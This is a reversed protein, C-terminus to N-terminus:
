LMEGADGGDATLGADRAQAAGVAADPDMAAGALDLVHFDRGPHRLLTALYTLGKTDRLQFSGDGHAVIWYDGEHRLEAVLPGAVTPESVSAGTFASARFSAVHEGLRLLGLEAAHTAAED